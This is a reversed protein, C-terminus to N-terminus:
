LEIELCCNDAVTKLLLTAEHIPAKVNANERGREKKSEQNWREEGDRKGLRESEIRGAEEFM